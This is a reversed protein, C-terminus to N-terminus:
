RKAYVERRHGIKVVLVVLATRRVEYLVRYDGIRIRYLQEQGKLKKIKLLESFPNISLVKLAEVIRDQIKLPLKNFEKRASHVFEVAYVSM